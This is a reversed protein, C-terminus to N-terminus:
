RHVHVLRLAAEHMAVRQDRRQAEPEATRVLRQEAVPEDADDVRGVRSESVPLQLEGVELGQRVRYSAAASGVDGGGVADEVLQTHQPPDM